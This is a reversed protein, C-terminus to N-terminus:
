NPLSFHTKKTDRFHTRKKVFPYGDDVRAKLKERIKEVSNGHSFFIM